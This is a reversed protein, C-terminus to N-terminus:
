LSCTVYGFLVLCLVSSFTTSPINRSDVEAANVVDDLTENCSFTWERLETWRCMMPNRGIVIPIFPLIFRFQAVNDAVTKWKMRILVIFENLVMAATSSVNEKLM